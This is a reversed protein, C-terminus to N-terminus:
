ALRYNTDTPPDRYDGRDLREYFDKFGRDTHERFAKDLKEKERATNAADQISQAAISTIAKSLSATIATAAAFEAVVPNLTKIAILSTFAAMDSLHDLAVSSTRLDSAWNDLNDATMVYDAYNSNGNHMLSNFASQSNSASQSSVETKRLSLIEFYEDGKMNSM